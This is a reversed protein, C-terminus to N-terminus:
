GENEKDKSLDKKEKESLSKGIKGFISPLYRTSYGLAAALLMKTHYSELGPITIWGSRALHYAMVGAIMAYIARGMGLIIYYATVYTSKFSEVNNLRFNIAVFGGLIGMNITEVLTENYNYYGSFKHSLIINGSFIIMIFLYTFFYRIRNKNIIRETLGEDIKEIFEKIEKMKERYEETKHDKKEVELCLIICKAIVDYHIERFRHTAKERQLRSRILIETKFILQAIECSFINSVFEEKEGHFIRLNEEEKFKIIKYESGSIEGQFFIKEEVQNDRYEPEM